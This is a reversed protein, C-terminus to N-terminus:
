RESSGHISHLVPAEAYDYRSCSLVRIEALPVLLSCRIARSLCDCGDLAILLHYPVDHERSNDIGEWTDKPCPSKSWGLVGRLVSATAMTEFV